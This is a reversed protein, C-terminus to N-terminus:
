DGCFCPITEDIFLQSQERNFKGMQAYTPRDKSFRAKIKNEQKEWWIVRDPKQQILSILINTGKLFCLDCNSSGSSKPLNLDFNNKNWFEWVDKESVGDRALPMFKDAQASIKSVRRHEDARIGIFTAYEKIGLSKLYRDIANVKLEQTCFRQAQNPLYNKKDILQEFPEGNRSANYYNVIEFFPKNKRYELWTIPVNWNISCDNVFKLTAEEEKGTNAFIVMADKPLGNNSQLIRWLMYASTRGGSFSIVTPEIIKFPDTM